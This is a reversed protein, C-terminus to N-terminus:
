PNPLMPKALHAPHRSTSAVIEFCSTQKLGKNNRNTHIHIHKNTSVGLLWNKDLRHRNGKKIYTQWASLSRLDPSRQPVGHARASSLPVFLYVYVYVCMCLCVYICTYM